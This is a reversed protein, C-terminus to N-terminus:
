FCADCTCHDRKGSECMSSARHSPALPDARPHDYFEQCGPCGPVLAGLKEMQFVRERYASSPAGPCLATHGNYAGCTACHCNAMEWPEKAREARAHPVSSM